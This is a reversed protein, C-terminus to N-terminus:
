RALVGSQWNAGGVGKGMETVTVGNKWKPFVGLREKHRQNM